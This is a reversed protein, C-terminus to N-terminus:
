APNGEADCLICVRRAVLKKAFNEEFRELDYAVGARFTFANKALVGDTVGDVLRLHTPLTKATDKTRLESAGGIVTAKTPKPKVEQAKPEEVPPLVPPTQPNEQAM